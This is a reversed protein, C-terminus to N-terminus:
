YVPYGSHGFWSRADAQSVTLLAGKVAEIIQDVTRAKASRLAAKIKSWLQEIPNYDSSYPPLYELRAGRASIAEAVGAVKHVSLNDLIVIDGPQLTPGLAERVYAQFVEGDVAGEMVMPASVGRIGLAALLTLKTGSHGPVGEVVREGPSARGYLRTMGLHIGTEDIFKLHSIVWDAM